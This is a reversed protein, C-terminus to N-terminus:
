GEGDVDEGESDGLEMDDRCSELAASIKRVSTLLTRISQTPLRNEGGQKKLVNIFMKCVTQADQM